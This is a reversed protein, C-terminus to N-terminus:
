AARFCQFYNLAPVSKRCQCRTDSVNQKSARSGCIELNWTSCTRGWFVTWAGPGSAAVDGSARLFRAKCGSLMKSINPFQCATELRIGWANGAEVAVVLKPYCLLMLSEVLSWTPSGSSCLQLEAHHKSARYSKPNVPKPNQRDGAFGTVACHVVHLLSGAQGTGVRVVASEYDPSWNSDHTGQHLASPKSM